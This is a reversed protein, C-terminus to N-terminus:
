PAYDDVGGAPCSGSLSYGAMIVTISDETDNAVICVGLASDNATIATYESDEVSCGSPADIM